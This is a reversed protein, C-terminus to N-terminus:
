WLQDHDPSCTIAEYSSQPVRHEPRVCSGHCVSSSLRSRWPFPRDYRSYFVLKCPPSKHFSVSQQEEQQEPDAASCQAVAPDIDGDVLDGATLGDRSARQDFAGTYAPMRGDLRQLCIDVVVDEIGIDIDITLGWTSTRHDGRLSRYEALCLAAPVEDHDPDPAVVRVTRAERVAAIRLRDEAAHGHFGERDVTVATAEAWAATHRTTGATGLLVRSSWVGSPSSCILRHTMRTLTQRPPLLLCDKGLPPPHSKESCRDQRSRSLRTAPHIEVCLSGAHGRIMGASGFISRCTSRVCVGSCLLSEM